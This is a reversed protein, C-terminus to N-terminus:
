DAVIRLEGPEYQVQTPLKYIGPLLTHADHEEHRLTVPAKVELFREGNPARWLRARAIAADAIESAAGQHDYIAHAHGTAEGFALVISNKDLPVAVCNLPLASVSVLAVDGQRVPIKMIFEKRSNISCIDVKRVEEAAWGVAAGSGLQAVPVAPVEGTTRRQAAVM